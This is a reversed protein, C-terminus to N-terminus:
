KRKCLILDYYYKKTLGLIKDLWEISKYKKYNEYYDTCIHRALSDQNLFLLNMARNIVIFEYNLSALPTSDQKIKFKEESEQYKMLASITDGSNELILGAISLYLANNNSYKILKNTTKLADDYRNLILQYRLNNEYSQLYSSDIQIAREIYLIAREYDKTKSATLIASDNYLSALNKSIQGFALNPVLFFLIIYRM